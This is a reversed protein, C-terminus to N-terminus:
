NVKKIAQLIRKSWRGGKKVFVAPKGIPADVTKYQKGHFMKKTWINIWEGEPFYGKVQSKGKQLVPIVLLDKGVLFQSELNYTNKDKPYELYLHRIVPYGMVSAQKNLFRFYSKLAFHIKGMKAFFKVVEKDSYVQWNKEPRNGEHTRLVPTFVNLETWRFLLEKSRHYNKLINNITTYGGVDSHNLAIGSIGSSLLAPVTSAIGDGRGWSVLQDGEWFLTSYKNSYSFGARTFFIIKGEMGAEKIAERNIKAWEVPYRNHFKKASVGSYLVADLPLWEGFDAMWGSLGNGILNTKIIQKIWKVTKPNTLDLLYAPFGATKIKYDKGARNKVLFNNKKAFDLLSNTFLENKKKPDKDALFPNIYGMVKVNEKNLHKVFKKFNPYLKKDPFWRWALQSGFSTLRKGCWDQIWLVRIPNGMKKAQSVVNLVKKEGGQIGLWTGFAWEPLEAFRGTKKTFYEILKLPKDSVWITGSLKNDWLHIKSINKQKFNFNMYCSNDVFLARGMSSIYFPIAMYTSYENGGAGAMLDAGFTIPQDGRGIGQEESFIYPSRGKMNVHSFQEGFGFLAEDKSSGYLLVLSNFDKNQVDINFKIESSSVIKINFVYSVSLDKYFLKGSIKINKKSVQFFDVTQGHTDFIKKEKLHFSAMKYKSSYIYKGSKIFARDLPIEMFVLNNKKLSFNKDTKVFDINKDLHRLTPIQANITLSNNKNCSVLVLLIFFITYTLFKKKSKIFFM